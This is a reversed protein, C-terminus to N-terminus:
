PPAIPFRERRVIRGHPLLAADYDVAWVQLEIEDWRISGGSELLALEAALAGLRPRTPLTTARRVSNAMERPILVERRIGENQVFAHLHRSGPADTTSFMGFGGGSWPSLAETRALRQQNVAVAILLVAPLWYPAARLLRAIPAGM